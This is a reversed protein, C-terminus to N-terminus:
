CVRREQSGTADSYDGADQLQRLHATCWRIIFLDRPTSRLTAMQMLFRTDAESLASVEEETWQVWAGATRQASSITVRVWDSREGEVSCNRRWGRDNVGIAASVDGIPPLPDALDQLSLRHVWRSHVTSAKV